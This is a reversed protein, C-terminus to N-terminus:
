IDTRWLSTTKVVVLSSHQNQFELCFFPFFFSMRQLSWPERREDFNLGTNTTHTGTQFGGTIDMTRREWYRLLVKVM